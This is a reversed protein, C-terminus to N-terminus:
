REISKKGDISVPVEGKLTIRRMVRQSDGYDNIAYHQTARNDWFAVDGEQWQWRVTNELQTVYDQLLSVIHNSSSSSLGLIRKVFNGLVLTKEGTEPHVRVVPHEAEYLTSVFVNKHRDIDEKSASPRKSAYDYDNTHLAWLQNALQKLEKPLRDYASTTNAWVTDGGFSPVKVARLISAKPYAQTFTVDTHWSDARGGKTSDLELLYNTNEKVPVTPHSVPEGFLKAFAEQEQDDLHHQGRFFIVKYKLLAEKIFHISESELNGTLHIGKVVAGIRGAIPQIDINKVSKSSERLLSMREGGKTLQLSTILMKM